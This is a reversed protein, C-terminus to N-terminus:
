ARLNGDQGLQASAQTPKVKQQNYIIAGQAM